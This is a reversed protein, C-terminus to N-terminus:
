ASRAHRTFYASAIVANLLVALFVVSVGLRTRGDTHFALLNVMLIVAMESQAVLGMSYGTFGEPRRLLMPLVVRGGVWKGLVRVGVYLGVLPVLGQVTVAWHAGALVLFLLYLPKEVRLLLEHQRHARGSLNAVLVGALLNTFVPSLRLHAALGGSFLVAGLLFLLEEREGLRISSVLLLVGGSLLGVGVSLLWWQLPGNWAAVPAAGGRLLVLAVAFLVVGFLDEFTACFRQFHFTKSRGFRTFQGVRFLFSVSTGAAAATLALALPGAPAGPPAWRSLGLYLFPFLLVAGVATQAATAAFYRAPVQALHARHFQLGFAFGVYGLGLGLFPELMLLTEADLLGTVSPGLLLGLLLFGEGALHFFHEQGWVRARGFVRHSAAFGIALVLVAGLFQKV